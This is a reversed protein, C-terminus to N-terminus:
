DVQLPLRQFRARLGNILKLVSPRRILSRELRRKGPFDILSLGTLILLTGQGPVGPIAMIIGLLVVLIGALNKGVLGLGRIVPHRRAWFPPPSDTNFQDVPWRVVLVVVLAISGVLLVLSLTLTWVWGLRRFFEIIADLGSHM